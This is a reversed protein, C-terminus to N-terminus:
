ARARLMARARELTAPACGAALLYGAASGHREELEGLVELLLGAPSLPPRHLGRYDIAVYGASTLAAESQAYDADVVDLPVGALRLLLGVVLGTRDKGAVCHVVVGGSPTEAVATVAEAFLPAHRELFSRYSFAHYGSDGVRDREAHLMDWYVPDREGLVSVPVVEITTSSGRKAREDPFRLDVIRGIGYAAAAAWAEPGALGIDDARVIRGSTTTAGDETPLGGLDRVNACGPWHLTRDPM